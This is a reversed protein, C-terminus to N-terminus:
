VKNLALPILNHGFLGFDFHSIDRKQQFVCNYAQYSFRCLTKFASFRNRNIASQKSLFQRITNERLQERQCKEYLTYFKNWADVNLKNTFFVM